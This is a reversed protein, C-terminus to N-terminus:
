KTMLAIKSKLAKNEQMLDYCDAKLRLLEENTCCNVPRFMQVYKWFEKAAETTDKGLRLEGDEALAAILEGSDKTLIFTHRKNPPRETACYSAFLKKEAEDLELSEKEAAPNNLEKVEKAETAKKTTIKSIYDLFAQTGTSSCNSLKIKNGDEVTAELLQGTEKVILFVEDGPIASSKSTMHNASPHEM